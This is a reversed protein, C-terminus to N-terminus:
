ENRSWAVLLLVLAAGLLWARLDVGGRSSTQAGAWAALDRPTEIARAGPGAKSILEAMAARDVGFRRLEAACPTSVYREVLMRGGERVSLRCVSAAPAALLARYIGPAKALLEVGSVEAAPMATANGVTQLQTLLAQLKLANVPEGSQPDVARLEVELKDDGRSETHLVFAGSNTDPRAEAWGLLQALLRRGPSAPSLLAAGDAGELSLALAARRALGEGGPGSLILLPESRTKTGGIQKLAGSLLVVDAGPKEKVRNLFKLEPWELGAEVFVAPAAKGAVPVFSETRTFFDQKGADFTKSLREGLKLFDAFYAGGGKEALDKLLAEGAANADAQQVGIGFTHLTTRRSAVGGKIPCLAQAARELEDRSRTVTQIGDSILLVLQEEADDAALTKQALLLAPLFDTNNEIKAARVADLFAARSPEPSLSAAVKANGSFAILGLRDQPRLKQVAQLQEGAFDLKRVTAGGAPTFRDDMSRSVDLLFLVARARDDRPTMEVPLLKELTGGRPHGGAGFAAAGGLAVLPAGAEVAAELARLAAGGEPLEEGSLGDLLVGAFGAYRSAEAPFKGSPFIEVDVGLPRAADGALRSLTSGARTLVAWKAPGTVRVAASLSNNLLVDGLLPGNEGSVTATYVIVGPARPRDTLRITARWEGGSYAGGGAAGVNITKSDVFAAAQGAVAATVRVKVTVPQQAAVTVELAIARVSSVSEPARLAALQVDSSAGLVAPAALLDIGAASLAAASAALELASNKTDRYDSLLLVARAGDEGAFVSRAFQLAGAIDTGSADIVAAPRALDPFNAGRTGNAANTVKAGRMAVLPALPVELACNRGFILAGAATSEPELAALLERVRRGQSEHDFISDSSDLAVLIRNRRLAGSGSAGAAAFIACLVGAATLLMRWGNPSRKGRWLILVAAAWAPLLWLVGPHM